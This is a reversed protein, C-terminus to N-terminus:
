EDPHSLSKRFENAERSTSFREIRSSTSNVHGCSTCKKTTRVTVEYLFNSGEKHVKVGDAKEIIKYEHTHGEIEDKQKKQKQMEEEEKQKEKASIDRNVTPVLPEDITQGKAMEILEDTKRGMSANAFFRKALEYSDFMFTYTRGPSRRKCVKCESYTTYRVIYFHVEKEQYRTPDEIEVKSNSNQFAAEAKIQAWRREARERKSYRNRHTFPVTKFKCGECICEYHSEYKLLYSKRYVTSTPAGKYEAVVYLSGNADLVEEIDEMPEEYKIGLTDLEKKTAIYYEWMNKKGAKKAKEESLKNMEAVLRGAREIDMNEARTTDEPEFMIQAVDNYCLTAWLGRSVPTKSIYRNELQKKKVFVLKDNEAEFTYENPLNSVPKPYLKEEVGGEVFKHLVHKHPSEPGQYTEEWGVTQPDFEVYFKEEWKHEPAKPKENIYCYFWKGGNEYFMIGSGDSSILPITQKGTSPRSTDLGKEIVSLYYLTRSEHWSDTRRGNEYYQVDRELWNHFCDTKKITYITKTRLKDEIGSYLDGIVNESVPNHYKDFQFTKKNTGCALYWDIGMLWGNGDYKFERSSREGDFDEELSIAETIRSKAGRKFEEGEFYNTKIIWGNDDLNFFQMTETKSHRSDRLDVRVVPGNLLIFQQDATPAYQPLKETFEAWAGVGPVMLSSQICPPVKEQAQAGTKVQTKAVPKTQAVISHSLVISFILFLLRTKM